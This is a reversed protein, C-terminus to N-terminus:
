IIYAIHAIQTDRNLIPTKLQTKMKVMRKKLRINQLPMQQTGGLCGSGHPSRYIVICCMSSFIKLFTAWLLPVPSHLIRIQSEAHVVGQLNAFYKRLLWPSSLSVQSLLLCSHYSNSLARRLTSDGHDILTDVEWAMGAERAMHHAFSGHIEWRCIACFHGHLTPM